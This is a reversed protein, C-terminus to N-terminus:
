IREVEQHRMPFPLAVQRWDIGPAFRERVDPLIREAYDPGLADVLAEEVVSEAGLARGYCRALGLWSVLTITLALWGPWAALAGAWVFVITALAQWALHHFALETTLWGAFFSALALPAPWHIPRYANATFWAGVLAVFLFLWPVVLMAESVGAARAVTLDGRARRRPPPAPADQRGGGVGAM